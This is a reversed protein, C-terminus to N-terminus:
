YQNLGLLCFFLGVHIFIHQNPRLADISVFVNIEYLLAILLLTLSANRYEVLDTHTSSVTM